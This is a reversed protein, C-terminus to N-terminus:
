TSDPLLFRKDFPQEGGEKLPLGLIDRLAM